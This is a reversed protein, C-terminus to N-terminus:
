PCRLVSARLTRESLGVSEDFDVKAVILSRGVALRGVPYRLEFSSAANPEDLRQVMKGDILFAVEKIGGGSVRALPESPKLCGSPASINTSGAVAPLLRSASNAFVCNVVEGSQLNVLVSRDTVASAGAADEADSCEISDVDFVGGVVEQTARYQGPPLRFEKSGGSALEFEGDLTGNFFFTGRLGDSVRNSIVVGGPRRVNTVVCNIRQRPELIVVLNAGPGAAVLEGGSTCAVRSAYAEQGVPGVVVDSIVHSGPALGVPGTSGGDGVETAFTVGDITLNFLGDDDSPILRKVVTIVGPVFRESGTVARAALAAQTVPDNLLGETGGRRYWGGGFLAQSGPIVTPNEGEAPLGTPNGSPAQQESSGGFAVGGLLALLVAAAVAILGPSKM